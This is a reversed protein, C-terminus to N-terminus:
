PKFFRNHIVEGLDIHVWNSGPRDEMRIELGPLLPLLIERAKDCDMDLPQFDVALGELHKSRRAGDVAKNYDKPRLWSTVRLPCNLVARIVEMKYATKSINEIEELSPKAYSGWKPLFLAEKWKFNACGPINDELEVEFQM